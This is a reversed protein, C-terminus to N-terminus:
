AGASTFKRLNRRPHSVPPGSLNPGAPQATSGTPAQYGFPGLLGEAAVLYTAVAVRPEFTVQRVMAGSRASCMQLLASSRTSEGRGPWGAGPRGQTLSGVQEDGVVVDSNLM